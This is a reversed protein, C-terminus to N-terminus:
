YWLRSPFQLSVFLQSFLSGLLQSTLFLIQNFFLRVLFSCPSILPEPAITDESSKHAAPVYIGQCTLGHILLCHRCFLAPTLSFTLCSCCCGAPPPAPCPSRLFLSGLPVAGGGRPLQGLPLVVALDSTDGRHSDEELHAPVPLASIPGPTVSHEIPEARRCTVKGLVRSPALDCINRQTLGKEYSQEDQVLSCCPSVNTAFVDKGAAPLSM